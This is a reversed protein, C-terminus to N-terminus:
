TIGKQFFALFAYTLLLMIIGMGVNVVIEPISHISLFLSLMPQTISEVLVNATVVLTSIVISTSHNQKLVKNVFIYLIAIGTLTAVNQSVPSIM